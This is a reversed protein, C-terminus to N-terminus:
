RNGSLVEEGCRGSFLKQALARVTQNHRRVIIRTDGPYKEIARRASFILMYLLERQADPGLATLYAPFLDGSPFRHVLFMGSIKEDTIVCCSLDEDFWKKEIYDLDQVLGKRGGFMCNIVGKMFMLETVNEFGTIREPVKKSVPVAAKLENVTVVIDRSEAPKVEFGDGKFGGIAEESLEKAEFFTNIVDENAACKDYESLLANIAEENESSIYCIEAGKDEEGSLNKYEWIMAGSPDSGEEMAVIGRYYERGISEAVDQDLFKEYKGVNETNLGIIEM